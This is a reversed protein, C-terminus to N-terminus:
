DLNDYAGSSDNGEPQRIAITKGAVDRSQGALLRDGADSGDVVIIVRGKSSAASWIRYRHSATGDVILQTSNNM